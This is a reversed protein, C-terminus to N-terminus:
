MTCRHSVFGLDFFGSIWPRCYLEQRMAYMCLNLMSIGSFFFCTYCKRRLFIASIGSFFFRTYCKRRLFISIDYFFFYTSSKPCSTRFIMSNTRSALHARLRALWGYKEAYACARAWKRVRMRMRPFVRSARSVLPSAGARGIICTCYVM